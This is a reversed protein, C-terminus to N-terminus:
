KSNKEFRYREGGVPCVYEMNDSGQVLKVGCRCAYGVQRAPNGQVLVHEPVDRTVVSGAGILAWRGIQVNPLVIAGAGIGAGYGVHITGVEWDADGLLAGDPNIARPYKDNTFIVGPGVM